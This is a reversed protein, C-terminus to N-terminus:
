KTIHKVAWMVAEEMRQRAIELERSPESEDDYEDLKRLFDAGLDKLVVMRQKEYPELVRYNHRVADTPNNVTRKDGESPVANEPTTDTM